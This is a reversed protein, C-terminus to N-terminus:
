VATFQTYTDFELLTSYLQDSTDNAGATFNLQSFIRNIIELPLSVRQVWEANYSGICSALSAGLSMFAILRM